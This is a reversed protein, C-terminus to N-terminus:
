TSSRGPGTQHMRCRNKRSAARGELRRVRGLRPVRRREGAKQGAVQEQGRCGVVVMAAWDSRLSAGDEIVRRFRAPPRGRCEMGFKRVALM